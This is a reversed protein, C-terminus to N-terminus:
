SGKFEISPTSFEELVTQTSRAMDREGARPRHGSGLRLGRVRSLRAKPSQNLPLAQPELKQQQGIDPTHFDLELIPPQIVRLHVQVLLSLAEV